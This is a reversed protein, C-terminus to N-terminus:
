QGGTRGCSEFSTDSRGTPPVNPAFTSVATESGIVISNDPGTAFTVAFALVLLGLFGGVRVPLSKFLRMSYRGKFTAYYIERAQVVTACM